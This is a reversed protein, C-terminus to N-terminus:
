EGHGPHWQPSMFRVMLDADHFVGGICLADPETGYVRFGLSEYLARAPANVSTVILGVQRLGDVQAARTLLATLLARGVGRGAAQDAVYMGIVYGKHREKHRTERMLGVTGVLAGDTPSFAGLLFSGEAARMGSLMSDFQSPGREIAEDYSQGFAAPHTELGRLRLAFFVDRDAPGFQRISPAEAM